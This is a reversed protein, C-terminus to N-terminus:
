YFVPKRENETQAPFTLFYTYHQCPVSICAVTPFQLRTVPLSGVLLTGQELAIMPQGIEVFGVRFVPIGITMNHTCRVDRM